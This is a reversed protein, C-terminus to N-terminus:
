CEPKTVACILWNRNPRFIVTVSIEGTANITFPHKISTYIHRLYFKGGTLLGCPGSGHLKVCRVSREVM